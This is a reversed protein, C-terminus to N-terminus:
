DNSNVDTEGEGQEEHPVEDPLSDRIEVLGVLANAMRVTNMGTTPITELMAIISTIKQKM